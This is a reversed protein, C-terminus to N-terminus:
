DKTDKTFRFTLVSVSKVTQNNIKAPAFEAKVIAKKIATEFGGGMKKLFEIDDVGGKENVYVKAIVSGEFGAQLAARPYEIYKQLSESNLIKASQDVIERYASKGAETKVGAYSTISTLLLFSFFLVKITNFHNSARM